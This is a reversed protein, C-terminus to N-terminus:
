GFHEAFEHRAMELDHRAGIDRWYEHLPYAVTGDGRARLLEFLSPMDLYAHAEVVDLTDPDLVYIGANVFERYAPKEKVGIISSGSLEVVGFPIQVVHERVCMTAKAESELHFEMLRGFDVRTLLDGNMVVFPREPRHPLLGLAGATGLKEKEELYEISVGLSKGDGFHDKIMEARYNVSIAFQGFGERKLGMIITELIPRGVLELMPKPCDDTLPRLRTGLGGAMLVVWTGEPPASHPEDRVVLGVVQGGESILPAHRLSSARLFELLDSRDASPKACQPSRNMVFTVSEDFDVGRLMARRIDGDTVIGHLKDESDVVLSVQVGSRDITEVADRVSADLAVTARRWDKM